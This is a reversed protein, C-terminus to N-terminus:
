QVLTTDPHLESVFNYLHNNFQEPQEINSMHGAMDITYLTSHAIHEYLYESQIVPTVTDQRGCLILAPIRIEPLSYCTEQRQALAQLTKTITEKTTNLITNRIKEVEHKKYNLSDECFVSKVFNDAYEEVGKQEIQEITRYRKEKQEASDAICQTDCLLIAEFRQPYRSVANLVIYGGMSLGCVIAKKIQLTDMFKILDDAFLTININETGADTKGFGRIDYAIVRHQDKLADLQPQWMSKDFPFGHIFLIPIVGTGLDDYCVTINGTRVKINNGTAM